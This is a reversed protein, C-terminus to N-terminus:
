MLVLIPPSISPLFVVGGIVVAVMSLVGPDLPDYSAGIVMVM